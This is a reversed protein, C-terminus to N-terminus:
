FVTKGSETSAHVMGYFWHAHRSAKVVGSLVVGQLLKEATGAANELPM